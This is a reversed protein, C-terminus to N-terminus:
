SCALGIAAVRGTERLLSVADAVAALAPGGPPPYRLSPLDAPDTVDLDGHVYLPGEPLTTRELDAM